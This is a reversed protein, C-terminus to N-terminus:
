KNPCFFFHNGCTKMFHMDCGNAAKIRFALLDKGTADLRDYATKHFVSYGMNGATGAPVEVESFQEVKADAFGNAYGMGKFVGDLFTKDANNSAAKKTLKELFQATTLGHSNGFEPCTGLRKLSKPEVGTPINFLPNQNGTCNCVPVQAVPAPKQEVVVPPVVVAEKQKCGDKMLWWLLGLLLLLPLLWWYRMCGDTTAAPTVVPPVVVPEVKQTVIPKPTIVVKPPEVKATEVVIPKPAPPPPVVVVPAEVKVPEPELKASELVVPAAVAAFPLWSWRSGATQYHCSRGIEQHNGAKLSLYYGHEDQKESWRAEIDRNKIVSEIGNDRPPTTPYGESKLIVSGDNNVWAFYHQGTPEYFFTTFGPHKESRPHGEYNKCPLYEDENRNEVRPAAAVARNVNINKYDLCNTVWAQAEEETSFGCSRAIEQKNGALLCVYWAADGDKGQRVVYREDIDRNRMVSEIGNNRGAESAYGESILLVNGAPDTMAFHHAHDDNEIAFASFGEYNSAPRNQYDECDLYHDLRAM